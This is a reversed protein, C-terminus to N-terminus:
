YGCDTTGELYDRARMMGTMIVKVFHLVCLRWYLSRIRENRLTNSTLTVDSLGHLWCTRYYYEYYCTPKALLNLQNCREPYRYILM